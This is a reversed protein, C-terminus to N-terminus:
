VYSALIGKLPPPLPPPPTPSTMAMAGPKSNVRPDLTHVVIDVRVVVARSVAGVFTIGGVQAHM